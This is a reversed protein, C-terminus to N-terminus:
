VCDFYKVALKQFNTLTSNETFITNNNELLYKNSERTIEEGIRLESYSICKINEKSFIIFNANKYPYDNGGICDYTFEGSKRFKVELYHISKNEPHLIVFDPTKRIELIIDNPEIEKLRPMISAIQTEVGYRYVEYGLNTFLQETITEAIRGKILNENFFLEQQTM